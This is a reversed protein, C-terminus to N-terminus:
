DYLLHGTFSIEESSWQEPWGRERELYLLLFVMAPIIDDCFSLSNLFIGKM